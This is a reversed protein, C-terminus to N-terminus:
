ELNIVGTVTGGPVTNPNHLVTEVSPGGVGMAKMLKKFVVNRRRGISPRVGCAHGSGAVRSRPLWRRTLRRLQRSPERTNRSKHPTDYGNPAFPAPSAPRLTRDSGAQFAHFARNTAGHPVGRRCSGTRIPQWHNSVPLMMHTVPWYEHIPTARGFWGVPHEM